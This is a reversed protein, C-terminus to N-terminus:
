DNTCMTNLINIPTNIVVTTVNARFELIEPKITRTNKRTM